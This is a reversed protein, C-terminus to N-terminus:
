KINKPLGGTLSLAILFIMLIGVFLFTYAYYNLVDYVPGLCTCKNKQLVMVYKIILYIYYVSLCFDLVLPVLISNKKKQIAQLLPERYLLKIMRSVLTISGVWVLERSHWTQACKCKSTEKELQRLSVLIYIDIFILFFTFIPTGQNM